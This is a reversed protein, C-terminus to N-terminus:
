VEIGLNFCYEGVWAGLKCSFYLGLAAVAVYSTTDLISMETTTTQDFM